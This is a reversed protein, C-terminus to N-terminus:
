EIGTRMLDDLNIKSKILPEEKHMIEHPCKNNNKKMGKSFNCNICLVQFGDPFKNKVIWPILSTSVLKSSYGLKKLEPESDMQRRGAIHDIALFDVHFNEGCCNCCPINSNSLRKSYVQLINLRKELRIKEIREANKISYEKRKIKNKKYYEKKKIKVDHRQSYEKRRAKVDPRSEYEKRRAKYEPRSEVVKRRSKVEPRSSYEKDFVKRRAKVEPRARYKQRYEKAKAKLEEETQVM